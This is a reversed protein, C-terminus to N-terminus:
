QNNNEHLAAEKITDRLINEMNDFFHRLVELAEHHRSFRQNKLHYTAAMSEVILWAEQLTLDDSHNEEM